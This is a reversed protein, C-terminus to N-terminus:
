VIALYVRYWEAVPGDNKDIFLTALLSEAGFDVRVECLPGANRATKVWLKDLDMMEFRRVEAEPDVDNGPRHDLWCYGARVAVFIMCGPFTKTAKMHICWRTEDEDEDYEGTTTRIELSLCSIGYDPTRWAWFGDPPYVHLPGARPAKGLGEVKSQLYCTRLQWKPDLLEKDPLRHFFNALRAYTPPAESGITPPLAVGGVCGSRGIELLLFCPLLRGPTSPCPFAGLCLPHALGDGELRLSQAFFEFETDLLSLFFSDFLGSLSSIERLDRKSVERIFLGLRLGRNTVQPPEGLGMLDVDSHAWEWWAHDCSFDRPSNALVSEIPPGTTPIVTDSSRPRYVPTLGYLLQFPIRVRRDELVVKTGWLFLTYDESAAIIHEQLRLFAKRPGEGYLLPMNVDLVGLLCYAMDEERTTNRESAWSMREAVCFSALMRSHDLVSEAIGHKVSILHKCARKSTLYKWDRNYFEVNRPAILEQLTWGRTWWRSRFFSHMGDVSRDGLQKGLELGGFVVDEPQASVDSLFAYCKMAREYWKFMSNITESLEASSTKDICCTDVWAWSLGDRLAQRCCQEIKAFAQKKRATDLDAMDHFTVEDEGWTHSLIAYLPPQAGFDKLEFTLANILRM